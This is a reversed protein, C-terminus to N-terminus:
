EKLLRLKAPDITRLLDPLDYIRLAGHVTSTLQGQPVSQPV